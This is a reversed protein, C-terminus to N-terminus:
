NQGDNVCAAAVLGYQVAAWGGEVECPGSGEDGFGAARLWAVVGDVEAVCARGPDCGFKEVDYAAYILQYHLGIIEIARTKVSFNEPWRAVQLSKKLFAERTCLSALLHYSM